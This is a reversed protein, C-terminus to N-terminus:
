PKYDRPVFEVAVATGKGSSSHEMRVTLLIPDPPTRAGCRIQKTLDDRYNIFQVADFRAARVRLTASPSDAPGDPDM